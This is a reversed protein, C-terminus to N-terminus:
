KLKQRSENIKEDSLTIFGAEKVYNQGDNVIWTLFDIVAKKQPKGKSVFFLERAPPSPYRGDAIAANIQEITDYFNEESDITGNENIDIPIVRIGDHPKKTKMDYVFVVNNFGIGFKDKMVANALGPDGLVGTGKLDDQKKGLYKAWSEAAGAADSRKFVKVQDQATKGALEGWSLPKGEIWLEIFQKRTIGKKLIDNLYPNSASITPIVADKTVAVHWAGQKLEEPNVDRSVMGLDVQQALADAMGKGAGGAQIKIKVDPNLKTYEEKWKEALPYLAFAGSIKIEQENNKKCSCNFLVGSLLLFILHKKM